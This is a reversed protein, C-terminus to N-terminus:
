ARQDPSDDHAPLYITFCTQGPESYVDIFGNSSRTMGQVVSLGIGAGRQSNTNKTTVFPDFLRDALEESIGQGTDAVSLCHYAGPPISMLTGAITASIKKRYLSVVIRGIGTQAEYANSVLNLMSRFLLTPESRVTCPGEISFTLTVDPHKQQMDKCYLSNSFEIVCQDLRLPRISTSTTGRVFDMLNHSLETAQRAAEEANHLDDDIPKGNRLKLRILEPYNLLPTLLNGLDHAIGGTVSIVSNTNQAQKLSERLATQNAVAQLMTEHEVCRMISHTFLEFIPQLQNLRWQSDSKRCRKDHFCAFFGLDGLAHISISDHPYQNELVTNKDAGVSRHTLVFCREQMARNAIASLQVRDLLSSELKHFSYAMVFSDSKSGASFADTNATLSRAYDAGIFIACQSLNQRAMLRRVFSDCNKQFEISKGICHALEYYITLGDVIDTTDPLAPNM